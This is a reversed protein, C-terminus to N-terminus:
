GATEGSQALKVPPAVPAKAAQAALRGYKRRLYSSTGTYALVPVALAGLFLMVQVLWGGIMGTHFSLMWYYLRYGRSPRPFPFLVVVTDVVPDLIAFPMRGVRPALQAGLCFM